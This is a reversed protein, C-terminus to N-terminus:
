HHLSKLYYSFGFYFVFLFIYFMAYTWWKDKDKKMLAALIMFIFLTYDGIVTDVTVVSKEAVGILLLAILFVSFSMSLLFSIVFIIITFLNYNFGKSKNYYDEKQIIIYYLIACILFFTLTGFFTNKSIPISDFLFSSLLPLISGVVILLKVLDKKQEWTDLNIFDIPAKLIRVSLEPFHDLLEILKKIYYVQRM